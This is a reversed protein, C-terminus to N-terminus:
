KNSILKRNLLEVITTVTMKKALTYAYGNYWVEYMPTGRPNIMPRQTHQILRPGEYPRLVNELSEHIASRLYRINPNFELEPPPQKQLIVPPQMTNYYDCVRNMTDDYTEGQARIASIKNRTRWRLPFSTFSNPDPDSMMAIEFVRESDITEPLLQPQQEMPPPIPRASRPNHELYFYLAKELFMGYSEQEQRLLDLKEKITVPITVRTHTTEYTPVLQV